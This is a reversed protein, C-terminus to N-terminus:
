GLAAWTDPGVVGDVSLGNAQQFARVSSATMPGFIGDVTLNYGLEDLRGQLYEVDPGRAGQRLTPRSSGSPTPTPAPQSGGGGELAAWTQAGVVGDATLGNSQQFQIVATETYYGFIGDVSVSHGADVLKQQLYSVDAGSSGRRLTPHTMPAAGGGGDITFPREAEFGPNPAGTTAYNPRQSAPMRAVVDTWFARYDGSFAGGNWAAKVKETFLGNGSGDMSLQDDQCGSILVVSAAVMAKESPGAVWQLTANQDARTANVLDRVDPPITKIARPAAEGPAPYVATADPDLGEPVAERAMVATAAGGSAAAMTASGAGDDGPASRSYRGKADRGKTTAGDASAGPAGNDLRLASSLSALVSREATSPVDKARSVQRSLDRYTSLMRLVTGSHCSDSLMFIRVGSAFQSWLSYLEDDILQRDWLVWTEDMADPEDGNVDDVQGGHGSYSLLLIDGANLAQSAQGIESIVRSSTAQSDTLLLSQYGLSSAISQMDRADNICGSLAGDWGNYASADVHNLGIHISMGTAM